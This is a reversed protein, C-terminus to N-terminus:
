PKDGPAVRDIIQDALKDRRRDIARSLATLVGFMSAGCAGCLLGFIGIWEWSYGQKALLPSLVSALLAGAMNSVFIAGGKTGDKFGIVTSTAIAIFIAALLLDWQASFWERM